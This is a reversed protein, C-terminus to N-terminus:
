HHSRAARQALAHSRLLQARNKIVDIDASSVGASDSLLAGQMDFKLEINGTSQLPEGVYRVLRAGYFEYRGMTNSGAVTRTETIYELQQGAFAAAYHTPVAALM